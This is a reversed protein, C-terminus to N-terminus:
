FARLSDHDGYGPKPEQKLKNKRWTDPTEEPVQNIPDEANDAPWNTYLGYNPYNSPYILSKFLVGSTTDFM